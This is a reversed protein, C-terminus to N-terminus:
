CGKLLNRSLKNGVLFTSPAIGLMPLLPLIRQLGVGKRYYPVHRDAVDFHLVNELDELRNPRTLM